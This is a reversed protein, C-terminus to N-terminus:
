PSSQASGSLQQDAVFPFALGELNEVEYLRRETDPTLVARKKWRAVTVNEEPQDRVLSPRDFSVSRLLAELDHSLHSTRLVCTAGNLFNCYVRRLFGNPFEELARRVFEDFDAAGCRADLQATPHTGAGNDWIPWARGKGRQWQFAWYSRYWSLPERVIFVRVAPPKKLALRRFSAHQGGVRRGGAYDTLFREVFKGGTKPVHSFLLDYDPCHTAM